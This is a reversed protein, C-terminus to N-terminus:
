KELSKKYLKNHAKELWKMINIGQPCKEECKGCKVCNDAKNEPKIFNNYFKQNRELDDYIKYNEYFGLIRSIAIDEPCPECYKCSTCGIPRRSKYVKRIKNFIDLENQSLSDVESKEATIINEKVQELTSMGSLVLQVNEHNWVWQLAADPYSRKKSFKNWLEKIEKPPEKCLQGGRLPEMVIIGLGKDAAYDLGKRGAQIDVDMYNYQIQCFEWKDYDDIIKKFVPLKDHFSFGFHKIKGAKIQEECFQLIDFNKVKEWSKKGLAHLLYFDFYDTKLKQLQEQFIKDADGKEKVKWMPLKTALFIDKRLNKKKLYEGVFNESEGGHYPYATDIYNVGHKLAFDLMAESQETDINKTEKGKTPLRMAGFGLVSVKEGCLNRYKMM